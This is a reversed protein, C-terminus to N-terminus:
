LESNNENKRIEEYLIKRVDTYLLNFEFLVFQLIDVVSVNIKLMEAIKGRCQDEQDM